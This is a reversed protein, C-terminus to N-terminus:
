SVVNRADIYLSDILERYRLEAETRKVKLTPTLMSNEITFPEDLLAFRRVREYNAAHSLEREIEREFLKRVEPEKVLAEHTASPVLGQSRLRLKVM